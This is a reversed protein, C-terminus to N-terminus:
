NIVLYEKIDTLYSRLTNKSVGKQQLYQAFLAVQQEQHTLSQQYQKALKDFASYTKDSLWKNNVAYNVFRRISKFRRKGISESYNERCYSLYQELARIQFYAILLNQKSLRIHNGQNSKVIWSFYDQLDASISKVAQFDYKQSNLFDVFEAQYSAVKHDKNHMYYM